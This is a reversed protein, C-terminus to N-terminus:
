PISHYGVYGKIDSQQNVCCIYYRSCQQQIIESLRFIEQDKEVKVNDSDAKLNRIKQEYSGALNELQENYSKQAEEFKIQFSIELKM